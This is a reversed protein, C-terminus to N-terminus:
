VHPILAEVASKRTRYEFGVKVGDPQKAIWHVPYGYLGSRLRGSYRWSAISHKEVEGVIVGDVKVIYRAPKHKRDGVAMSYSRPEISVLKINM